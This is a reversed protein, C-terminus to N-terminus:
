AKDRVLLLRMGQGKEVHLLSTADGRWMSLPVLPSTPKKLNNSAKMGRVFFSRMGQGEWRRSIVCTAEVHLLSTADGRWMSLPVLPLTQRKPNM